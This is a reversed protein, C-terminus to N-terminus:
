SATSGETPDVERGVLFEAASEYSIITEEPSKNGGYDIYVFAPVATASTTVSFNQSVEESLYVGPYTTTVTM